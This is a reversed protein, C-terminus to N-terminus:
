GKGEVTHRNAHAFDILCFDIHLSGVCMWKMQTSCHKHLRQNTHVHKLSTQTHKHQSILEETQSPQQSDTILTNAWINVAPEKQRSFPCVSAQILLVPDAAEKYALHRRHRFDQVWTQPRQQTIIHSTISVFASINHLVTIHARKRSPMRIDERTWSFCM